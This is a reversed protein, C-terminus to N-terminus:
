SELDRLVAIVEACRKVVSLDLMTGDAVEISVMKQERKLKEFDVTKEKDANQRDPGLLSPLFMLLIFIVVGFAFMVFAAPTVTEIM